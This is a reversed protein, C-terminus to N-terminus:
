SKTSTNSVSGADDSTLTVIINLTREKIGGERMREKGREREGERGRGEREM